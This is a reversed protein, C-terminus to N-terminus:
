EFIADFLRSLRVLALRNTLNEAARYTNQTGDFVGADDLVELISSESLSADVFDPDALAMVRYMILSTEKETMPKNPEFRGGPADMLGLHVMFFQDYDDEGCDTVVGERYEPFPDDEESIYSFLTAM